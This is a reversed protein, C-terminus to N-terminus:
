PIRSFGARRVGRAGHMARGPRRHAAHPRLPAVATPLSPVRVPSKATPRGRASSVAALAIVAVDNGLARRLVPNYAQSPQAYFTEEEKLEPLVMPGLDRRGGYISLVALASTLLGIKRGQQPDRTGGSTDLQWASDVRPLLMNVLLNSLRLARPDNSLLYLRSACDLQLESYGADFGTGGVGTETLYGSGDSGDSRSPANVIVLGAGPFRTQDPHLTSNWADNYAVRYTADGTAQWVLYFFEVNGININGNTYWTVNGNRILYTAAAALSAQWRHRRVPDLGAALEHYVTGFEVGFFMTAIDPSQADGLGPPSRFSGDPAQRTAIATDITQM